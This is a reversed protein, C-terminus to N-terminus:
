DVCRKLEGEMSGSNDLLFMTITQDKTKVKEKEEEFVLESFHKGVLDQPDIGALNKITNNIYNIKGDIDIQFFVYPANNILELALKENSNEM